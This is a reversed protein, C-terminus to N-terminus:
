PELHSQSELGVEKMNNSVSDVAMITPGFVKSDLDVLNGCEGDLINIRLNSKHRWKGDFM